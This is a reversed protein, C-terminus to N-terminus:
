MWLSGRRTRHGSRSAPSLHGNSSSPSLVTTAILGPACKPPVLTNSKATQYPLISNCRDSCRPNCDRFWDCPDSVYLLRLITGSPMRSHSHRASLWDEGGDRAEIQGAILLTHGTNERLHKLPGSFVKLGMGFLRLLKLCLLHCRSLFDDMENHHGTLLDPMDQQPQGDVFPAINMARPNTLVTDRLVFGPM